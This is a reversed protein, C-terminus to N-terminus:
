QVDGFIRDEIRCANERAQPRSDATDPFGPGPVGGGPAHHERAHCERCLSRLNPLEDTGGYARAKVHGVEVAPAGCRVCVYGDRRLARERQRRWRRSGGGPKLDSVYGEARERDLRRQHVACRSRSTPRGCVLCPRKFGSM